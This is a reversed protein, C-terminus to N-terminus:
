LDDSMAPDATLVGAHLLDNEDPYWMTDPAATHMRAVFDPDVGAELYLAKDREQEGEPDSGLVVYDAEIRYQHFGLKGGPKLVRKRGGIFATTCASSCENEVVVGLGRERFLRALGRAEYINGGMSSLIVTKVGTDQEIFGTLKRTIGLELTGRVRLVGEAVQAIEYKAERERQWEASHDVYDPVDITMQWANLAQSATIWFAVIVGFQAGWHVAIAGRERIYAEGARFVGVTQWVFVIGHFFIALGLVLVMRSHYDEYEGPQFLRQVAFIVIRLCVLNVAFSWLLGQEGRWHSLVYQKVSRWLM